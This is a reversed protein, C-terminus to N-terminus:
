PSTPLLDLVMVVADERDDQYYAPRVGVPRFGFAEYLARAAENSRRVELHAIRCGQERARALAADLLTRGLGRRRAVRDVAVNLIQLEDAVVWFIAFGSVAPGGPGPVEALLVTSWAHDLESKLMARSWPNSFAQAELEVVRDLDAATM